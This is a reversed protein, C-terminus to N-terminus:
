RCFKRILTNLTDNTAEGIANFKWENNYRYLEGVVLCTFNNYNESLNFRLVEKNTLDNVIRIFANKIQGFHQNRKIADYINVFFIIKDVQPGVLNLNVKIQEDDGEGEGTLNDGTHYIGHKSNSLNGFYILDKEYNLFGDSDLLLASADCDFNFKSKPKSSFLEALFGNKKEEICDWGLGVTIKSINPEEKSLSIRQGKKLNIAM